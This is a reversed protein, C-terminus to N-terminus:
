ASRSYDLYKSTYASFNYKFPIALENGVNQTQLEVLQMEYFAYTATVSPIEKIFMDNFVFAFNKLSKLLPLRDYEKFVQMLFDRKSFSYKDVFDLPDVEEMKEAKMSGINMELSSRATDGPKLGAALKETTM